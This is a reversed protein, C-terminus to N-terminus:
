VAVEINFNSVKTVVNNYMETILSFQIIDTKIDIKFTITKKRHTQTPSDFM